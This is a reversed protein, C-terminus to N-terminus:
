GYAPSDMSMANAIVVFGILSGVCLQQKGSPVQASKVSASHISFFPVGCPAPVFQAVACHGVRSGVSFHQRGSPLQAFKVNASHLALPPVGCPAPVIQSGAVGHGTEQLMGGIVQGSPPWATM